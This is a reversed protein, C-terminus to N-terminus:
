YLNLYFSSIDAWFGELNCRRWELFWIDEPPPDGYGGKIEQTDGIQAWARGQYMCTTQLRTLRRTVRRRVLSM